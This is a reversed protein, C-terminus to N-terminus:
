EGGVDSNFVSAGSESSIDIDEGDDGKTMEELKKCQSKLTQELTKIMKKHEVISQVLLAMKMKKAKDGTPEQNLINRKMSQLSDVKSCYDDKTKTTKAIEDVLSEQFSQKQDNELISLLGHALM